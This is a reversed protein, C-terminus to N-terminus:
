RHQRAARIKPSPGTTGSEPPRKRPAARAPAAEIAVLGLGCQTGAEATIPKGSLESLVEELEEDEDEHEDPLCPGCMFFQEHDPAQVWGCTPAVRDCLWCM